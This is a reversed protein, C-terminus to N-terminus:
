VIIDSKNIIKMMDTKDLDNLELVLRVSTSYFGSSYIPMYSM